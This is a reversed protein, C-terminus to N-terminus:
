KGGAAKAGLRKVEALFGDVESDPVEQWPINNDLGVILKIANRLQQNEARLRKIEADRASDQCICCACRKDHNAMM